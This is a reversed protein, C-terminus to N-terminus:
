DNPFLADTRGLARYALLGVIENLAADLTQFRDQPQIRTPSWSPSRARYDVPYPIVEVGAKRFAGLARPMHAASTVLLYPGPRGQLLAAVETANEHTNRSTEEFEFTDPNLGVDILFYRTIDPERLFSDFLRGSGGTIVIPLNSRRRRLSMIATLREAADNIVYTGREEALEGLGTAGGLIIAGSVADIDYAAPEIRSELGYALADALPTASVVVFFAGATWLTARALRARRLARLVLGIGILLALLHLPHILYHVAKSVIFM